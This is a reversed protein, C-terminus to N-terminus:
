VLFGILACYFPQEQLRLRVLAVAVTNLLLDGMTYTQALFQLGGILLAVAIGVRFAQVTLYFAVRQTSLATIQRKGSEDPPSLLTGSGRLHIATRVHSIAVRLELAM